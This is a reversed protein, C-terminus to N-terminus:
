MGPVYLTNLIAKKVEM